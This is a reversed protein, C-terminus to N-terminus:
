GIMCNGEQPPRLLENGPPMPLAFRGEWSLWGAIASDSILDASTSRLAFSNSNGGSSSSSTSTGTSSGGFSFADQGTLRDYAHRNRDEDSSPAPSSEDDSSGTGTSAGGDLKLEVSFLHSEPVVISAHADVAGGLWLIAACFVCRITTSSLGMLFNM